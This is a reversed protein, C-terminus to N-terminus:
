WEAPVSHIEAKRKRSEAREALLGGIEAKQKGLKQKEEPQKGSETELKQKTKPAKRKAGQLNPNQSSVKAILMSTAVNVNAGQNGARGADLAAGRVNGALTYGDAGHESAGTQAPTRAFQQECRAGRGPDPGRRRPM